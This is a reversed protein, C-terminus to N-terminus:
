PKVLDDKLPCGFVPTSVSAPAGSEIAAVAADFSANDGAHGRFETIGGSFLLKGARDFLRIDGSTQMGFRECEAGDVDIEAHAGPIANVADFRKTRAWAEPMTQPKIFLATTRLRGQCRTMLRNLEYISAETCPCQPHVAMILTASTENQNVFNDRPWSDQAVGPAGARLEYSLFRSAIISLGIAWVIICVAVLHRISITLIRKCFSSKASM